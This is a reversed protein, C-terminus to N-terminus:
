TLTYYDYTLKVNKENKDLKPYCNKFTGQSITKKYEVDKIYYNKHIGSTSKDQWDKFFVIDLKNLNFIILEGNDNYEADFEKNNIKIIM